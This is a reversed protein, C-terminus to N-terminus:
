YVQVKQIDKEDRVVTNITCIECKRGTFQVKSQEQRKM